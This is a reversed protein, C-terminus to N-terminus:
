KISQIAQRMGAMEKDLDQLKHYDRKFAGADIPHDKLQGPITQEYDELTDPLPSTAYKSTQKIASLVPSSNGNLLLDLKKLSENIDDVRQSKEEAQVYGDLRFTKFHTDQVKNFINVALPLVESRKSTVAKLLRERM